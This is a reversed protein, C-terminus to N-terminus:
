YAELEKKLEELKRQAILSIEEGLSKPAEFETEHNGVGFSRSGFIKWETRTHIIRKLTFKANTCFAINNVFYELDRIEKLLEQGRKVKLEKTEM